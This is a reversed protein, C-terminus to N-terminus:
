ERVEPNRNPTDRRPPEGLPKDPKPLGHTFRASAGTPGFVKVLDFNLLNARLRQALSQKGAVREKWKPLPM